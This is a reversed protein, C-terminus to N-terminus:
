PRTRVVLTREESSDTEVVVERGRNTERVEYEADEGDLTVRAIEVDDPLTHGIVLRNISAHCAVRTRYRAGAAHAQVDISGDGIRVNEAGIRPREPPVQPTVELRGRGADPRVGLRQAVVPWVTGYSGWAQLAMLRDTFPEDISRGYEPSPAVEPMAGPIEDPEPLQLSANADVFRKQQDDGLRGHNGEAIAMIASNLTYINREAHDEAGEYEERDCGPAGTHYLGPNWEGKIEDEPSGVGGYCETERLELAGDADVDGAIGLEREEDGIGPLEIELPTLGIWHRHYLPTDDEDDLSDAYQPAEPVWWTEDFEALMEDARETAWEVTEEDGKNAAMDALDYLGRITYVANDVVREGMGEREVNGEGTPWGDAADLEELLYEANRRTFDYLEDRFADDGSWRWITAVASPFKATEDTNGPDDNAGYFM